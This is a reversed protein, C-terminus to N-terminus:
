WLDVQTASVAKATLVPTAEVALTSSDNASAFDIDGAYSFEITYPKTSAKITSTNFAISFNDNNDIPADVTVGDITIAVNEGAPVNQGNANANLTGSIPTTPTGFPIVLLSLGSFSPHAQNVTVSTNGDVAAFTGDGAYSLSVNYATVSAPLTSTDFTTTFNDNSDLM